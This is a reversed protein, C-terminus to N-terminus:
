CRREFDTVSLSFFRGRGRRAVPYNAPRLLTEYEDIFEMVEKKDWIHNGTTLVDVRSEYIEEVVARTVGFGGAANEVNAVALDIDHRHIIRPLLDRVARRGPKGVVDGIFLLKM